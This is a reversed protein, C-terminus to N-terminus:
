QTLSELLTRNITPKARDRLAAAYTMEVDQSIAKTLATRMQGAGLPDAAPDPAEIGVLKAVLFGEPTELMTADNLTLGFLPEVLAPPVGPTPSSRGIPPTRDTRVGAIIAADDLSGGAKAAALLKSAVTEQARRRQDATWDERVKAEVAEFPKVQPPTEDEVVLAFYSQDPGEILHPPENKAAAFAATIMASRLAGGAPIPAPDGDPTNGKADLTGAIGAIGLEPPLDDLATGASLADELKNARGYVDDVARERAVRQRITDRVADLTQESGPTVKTVRFVQWGFPSKVPGTVTEAAAKFAADGLEAGPIDAQAADDLQAASAGAAAAAQQMAAWDAGTIWQTALTQAAAEDQAVVVQLSRKEPGGFEAKHADYYTQLDADPVQIDRSVTDPSLIVAKIRRFAPASYRQPDNDYARRLTDTEPAAPEPAASFPLEVLEAVRQERQFAFVPKLMADPVSVGVQVAEMLQRQGLDSRMLELFRGETLNNQRLVGEFTARDFAGTRGRFAPIEFVSQRLAEDPVAIGMGAVTEAIAAQVILRELAQGAIGRRMAPTPETKGGLMRSVQSLQQRFADQFEPPEIKRSGVKALATDNGFNKAVDAVGWLVFPIILVVFFLRALRTNLFIRFQALMPDQTETSRPAGYNRAPRKALATGWAAPM